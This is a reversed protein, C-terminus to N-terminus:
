WQGIRGLELKMDRLRVVDGTAQLIGSHIRTSGCATMASFSPFSGFSSLVEHPIAVVRGGSRILHEKVVNGSSHCRIQILRSGFLFLERGILIWETQSTM